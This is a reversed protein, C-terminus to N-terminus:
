RAPHIRASEEVSEDVYHGRMKWGFILAITIVPIFAITITGSPYDFAMMVIVLAFFALTLWSSFPYWPMKFNQEPILGERIRTRMRMHCLIICSWSALIGLASLNLAIEFVSSPILYNLAVGILYVSVTTLIAVYPVSFRNMKKLAHPASGGFAMARLMRGTSYLGSNFSSLAATIVVINMVNEIGPIHLADLFTVFPSQDARYAWWPMVCVLLIVSGVYFVTVRLFISRVVGRIIERPNHCEGAAVGVLEIASYAFIIGQLLLLSPMIGHPFLGGNASIMWFGPRRGDVPIHWGCVWIGIILFFVLAVVKIISFWFEFEGFYRVSILNVLGIFSLAILAFVWQPVDGFVPWFHMYVAVATIDVIGVMTWYLFTMWGAIYAAREGYFERAYSVYSGATPRYMILEGLARLILFSFFGCILYDIALSPGIQHLRAGAGLFLGTGIAGGIAIMQMQRRGLDRHYGENAPDILPTDAANNQTM